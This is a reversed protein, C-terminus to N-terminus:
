LKQSLKALRYVTRVAKTAEIILHHSRHHHTLVSTVTTYLYLITYYHLPIISLVVTTGEERYVARNLM